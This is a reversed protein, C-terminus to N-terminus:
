LLNVTNALGVTNHDTNLEGRGVLTLNFDNPLVTNNAAEVVLVVQDVDIITVTYMVLQGLVADIQEAGEILPAINVPFVSIYYNNHMCM